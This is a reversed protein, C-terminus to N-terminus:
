GPPVDLTRQQEAQAALIAATEFEQDNQSYASYNSPNMQEFLDKFEEIIPEATKWLYGGKGPIIDYYIDILLSIILQDGLVIGLKRRLEVERFSVAAKRSLLEATEIDIHQDPSISM